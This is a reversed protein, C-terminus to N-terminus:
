RAVPFPAEACSQEGHGGPYKQPAPAVAGVSHAGPVTLSVSPSINVSDAVPVNWDQADLSVIAVQEAKNYSIKQVPQSNNRTAFAKTWPVHHKNCLYKVTKAIDKTNTLDVDRFASPEHKM